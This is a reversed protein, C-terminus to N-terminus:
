KDSKVDKVDKVCWGKWIYRRRGTFFNYCEVIITLINHYIPVPIVLFACLLGPTVVLIIQWTYDMTLSTLLVLSILIGTGLLILDFPKFIGLILQGSKTNAPILYNDNM